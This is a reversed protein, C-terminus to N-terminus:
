RFTWRSLHPGLTRQFAGLDSGCVVLTVGRPPPPTTTPTYDRVITTSTTADDCQWNNLQWCHLTDSKKWHSFRNAPHPYLQGPHISVFEIWFTLRSLSYFLHGGRVFVVVIRGGVRVVIVNVRPPLGRFLLFPRAPLQRIQGRREKLEKLM